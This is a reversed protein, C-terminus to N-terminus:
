YGSARKRKHGYAIAFVLVPAVIILVSPEPVATFTFQGQFVFDSFESDYPVITTSPGLTTGSGSLFGASSEGIRGSLSFSGVTAGPVLQDLVSSTQATEGPLLLNSSSIESGRIFFGGINTFGSRGEGVLVRTGDPLLLDINAAYVDINGNNTVAVIMSAKAAGTTAFVGITLIAAASFPTCVNKVIEEERTRLGDTFSDFQL